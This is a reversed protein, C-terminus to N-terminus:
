GPTIAGASRQIAQVAHPRLMALAEELAGSEAARGAAGDVTRVTDFRNTPLGLRVIEEASMLCVGSTVDRSALLVQAAEFGDQQEAAVRRGNIWVGAPAALGNCGMAGMLTTADADTLRPVIGAHLVLHVPIRCQGGMMEELLQVYIDPTTQVGIQPEANVECILAGSDFWSRAIDPILLDVGAPDLRLAASARLVLQVNDPHAQEIPILTQAGGASINSKRRLRVYEGPGPVYQPTLGQETLLGLAEEDLQLPMKGRERFMRALRPGQQELAVLQEVSHVGDGDVGGARRHEIKVIRGQFVTVRYDQGDFHKEVLVNESLERAVKFAAAVAVDSRLGAAVGMGQKRDAPKVVVPFGLQHAAQIAQEANGVKFHQGAPVGAQRLVAATAIKDHAIHVGIYSTEDLITGRLWRGYCGTGLRHVGPSMGRVPIDLRNAATLFHFRNIGPEGYRRITACVREYEKRAHMPGVQSLSGTVLFRHVAQAVWDLAALTADAHLYPLAVMFSDVNGETVEPVGIHSRPSVPVQCRRQLVSVWHIARTVAAYGATAEPQHPPYKEELLEVMAQDLARFEYDSPLKVRVSGLVAPQQLGYATGRLVRWQPSVKFLV